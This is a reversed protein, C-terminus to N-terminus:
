RQARSIIGEPLAGSGSMLQGEASPVTGMASKLVVNPSSGTRPPQIMNRGMRGTTKLIAGRILGQFVESAEPTVQSLASGAGGNPFLTEPVTVTEARLAQTLGSRVSALKEDQTAGPAAAILKAREEAALSQWKQNLYVQEEASPQTAGPDQKKEITSPTVQTQQEQNTTGPNSKLKRLEGLEAGQRTIQEQADQFMKQLKSYEAADISPTGGTAAAQTTGEANGQGDM